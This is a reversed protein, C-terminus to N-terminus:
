GGAQNSAVTLLGIRGNSGAMWAHGRDPTASMCHYGLSSIKTWSKGDVSAFTGAPGTSVFVSRGGISVESVASQFPVRASGSLRWTLGGTITYAITASDTTTSTYDGGVVIGNLENRFFVSFIGTTSQGSIVPTSHVTWTDGGDNSVLVRAQTGGTGIWAMDRGFTRVCTGSAAFGAEGELAFPINEFEVRAWTEGSDETRMIFLHGDVPDGVVVGRNEDWFAFANLFGSEMEMQFCLKWSRGEDSSKYIRSKTGPGISLVLIAGDGFVHVDRFDLNSTDPKELQQWNGGGDQTRYISSGTGTVVIQNRDVASIGRLSLATDLSHVPTVTLHKALDLSARECNCLSLCAFLTLAIYRM